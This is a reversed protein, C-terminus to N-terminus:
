RGDSGGLSTPGALVRYDKEIIGSEGSGRECDSWWYKGRHKGFLGKTGYDKFHGRIKHLSQPTLIPNGGNAAAVIKKVPDITLTHWRLLPHKGKRTRSKQLEPPHAPGKVVHFSKYHLFSLAMLPIPMFWSAGSAFKKDDGTLGKGERGSLPNTLAIANKGEILSFQGDPLVGWTIGPAYILRGNPYKWFFFGSTTWRAVPFMQKIPAFKPEKKEDMRSLDLSSLFIGMPIREPVGHFDSNDFGWSSLHSWEMWINDFPPALNPFDKEMDWKTPPSEFIYDAVNHVKFVMSKKLRDLFWDARGSQPHTESLLDDILM